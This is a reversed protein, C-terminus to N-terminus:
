ETKIADVPNSSAAKWSSYSVTITAILFTILVTIAYVWIPQDIRYAFGKLWHSMLFFAMPASLLFALIIVKVFNRNILLMIQMSSAGLVKRLGIEKFRREATFLVFGFLGLGGLIMSVLSFGSFLQMENVEREYAEKAQQDLFSYFFPVSEGFVQYWSKELEGINEQFNTSALRVSIYDLRNWNVYMVFPQIEHHLSRYHFDKVVGIIKGSAEQSQDSMTRGIIQDPELGLDRVASENLIFASSDSAITPDFARGAVIELNFASIYDQEVTYREWLKEEEVQDIDFNTIYTYDSLMEHSAATVKSIGQFATAVKRFADIKPIVADDNHIPMNVIVSDDFGLEKNQLFQLQLYVIFTCIVLGSTIAFQTVILANRVSRGGDSSNFKKMLSLSNVRSIYLAPYAGSLISVVALTLFFYSIFEPHLLDSLHYIHQTLGGLWPLLFYTLCASLIGSFVVFIITEFFTQQIIQKRVGGLVKRIGVEKARQGAQATVMNIFNFCGLFLVIAGIAGFLVLTQMENHSSWEGIDMSKGLHIDRMSQIHPIPARSPDSGYNDAIAQQALAQVEDARTPDMLIYASVYMNSWSELHNQGGWMTQKCTELNSILDLQFSTNTPFDQYVGVVELKNIDDWSFVLVQGLPNESGFYKLAISESIVVTNPRDLIGDLNGHLIKLDFLEFFAPDAWGFRPENFSKQTGEVSIPIARRYKFIRTGSKVADLNEILHPTMALPAFAYTRDSLQSTNNIRYIQDSKSFVQDFNLEKHIYLYILSACSIGLILSALSIVAYVKSKKVTRYLVLAYQKTMKWNYYWARNQYREMIGINRLNFSQVVEKWLKLKAYKPQKILRERYAEILDGEIEDILEKKCFWRLFGLPSKPFEDQNKM